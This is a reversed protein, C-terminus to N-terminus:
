ICAPDGAKGSRSQVGEEMLMFNWPVHLEEMGQQVPFEGQGALSVM